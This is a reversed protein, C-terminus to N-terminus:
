LMWREEPQSCSKKLSVRPHCLVVERVTLERIKKRTNDEKSVQEELLQNEQELKNLELMVKERFIKKMNEVASHIKGIHENEATGVNIGKNRKIDAPLLVGGNVTSVLTM